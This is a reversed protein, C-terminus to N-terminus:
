SLIEGASGGATVLVKNGGGQGVWGGAGHRGGGQGGGGSVRKVGFVLTCPGVVVCVCVEGALVM